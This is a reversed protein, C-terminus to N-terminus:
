DRCRTVPPHQALRTGISDVAYFIQATKMRTEQWLAARRNQCRKEERDSRCKTAPKRARDHERCKQGKTQPHRQGARSSCLRRRTLKIRQAPQRAQENVPHTRKGYNDAKARLFADATM